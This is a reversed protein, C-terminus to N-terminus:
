STLFDRDGPFLAFANNHLVDIHGFAAITRDMLREVQDAKGIDTQVALAQDGKASIEAAVAEGGPGNIDAIVVAAGEQALRFATARGIGAAGGTIIGVKNDLRGM